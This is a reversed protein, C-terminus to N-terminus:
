KRRILLLILVAASLGTLIMPVPKESIVGRIAFLVTLLASIVMAAQMGWKKKQYMGFCSILLAIGFVSGSVVSMLSCTRQYGAYGFVILFLAFVLVTWFSIKDKM